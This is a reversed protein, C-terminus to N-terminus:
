ERRHAVETVSTENKLEEKDEQNDAVVQDDRNGGEEEKEELSVLVIEEEKRQDDGNGGEGEKRELTGPAVEEEEM